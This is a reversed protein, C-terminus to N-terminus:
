SPLLKEVYQKKAENFLGKRGITTQAVAKLEAKVVPYKRQESLAEDFLEPKNLFWLLGERRADEIDSLKEHNPFIAVAEECFPNNKQYPAGISGFFEEAIEDAQLETRLRTWLCPVQTSLAESKTCLERARGKSGDRLAEHVYWITLILVCFGSKCLSVLREQQTAFPPKELLNVIVWRDMFLKLPTM